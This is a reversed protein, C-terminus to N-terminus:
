GAGFVPQDPGSVPSDRERRDENGPARGHQQDDLDPEGPIGIASDRGPSGSREVVADVVLITVFWLTLRLGVTATLSHRYVELADGHWAAYYGLVALVGSLTVTGLLARSRRRFLLALAAVAALLWREALLASPPAAVAGIVRFPGAPHNRYWSDSYGEVVGFDFLAKRDEFPRRLTWGPHTVLYDLYVRRGDVRVWHRFAAFSAGDKV